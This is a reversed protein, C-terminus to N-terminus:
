VREYGGILSLVLWTLSINCFKENGNEPGRIFQVSACSSECWKEQPHDQGIM